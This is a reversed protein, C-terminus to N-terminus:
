WSCRFPLSFCLFFYFSPYVLCSIALIVTIVSYRAVSIITKTTKSCPHMHHHPLLTIIIAFHYMNLDYSCFMGSPFAFLIRGPSIPLSLQNPHIIVTFYSDVSEVGNMIIKHRLTAPPGDGEWSFEMQFASIETGNSYSDIDKRFLQTVSIFIGFRYM